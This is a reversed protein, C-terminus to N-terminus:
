PRAIALEARLSLTGFLPLKVNLTAFERDDAVPNVVSIFMFILPATNEIGREAVVKAMEPAETRAANVAVESPTDPVLVSPTVLQLVSVALALMVMEPAEDHWATVHVVRVAELVIVPTLSVSEPASVACDPVKEM